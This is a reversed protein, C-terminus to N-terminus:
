SQVAKAADLESTAARGDAGRLNSLEAQSCYVAAYVAGGIYLPPEIPFGGDKALQVTTHLQRASYGYGQLQQWKRGSTLAPERAVVQVEVDQETGIRLLM